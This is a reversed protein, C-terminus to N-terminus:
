GVHNRSGGLIVRPVVSGVGTKYGGFRWLFSSMFTRLEDEHHGFGRFGLIMCFRRASDHIDLCKRFCIDRALTKWSVLGFYHWLLLSKNGGSM